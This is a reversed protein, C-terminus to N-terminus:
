EMTLLGGPKTLGPPNNKQQEPSRNPFDKAFKGGTVFWLRRDAMKGAVKGKGDGAKLIINLWM